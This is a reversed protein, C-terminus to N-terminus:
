EKLSQLVAKTVEKSYFLAGEPTLHCIDDFHQRNRPMKANLDIFKIEPYRNAIRHVQRNHAVIGAIVHQPKGWIEVASRHKGYDLVRRRFNRLSYDEPVYFAFTSLMLLEGKERAIDAINRLNEGFSKESKIDGGYKLWEPKLKNPAMLNDKNLKEQLLLWGLRLTYPFTIYKLEQHEDALKLLSYWHYYHSYDTKFVAPPCNNTRVENIGHYFLVVDFPKDKLHNYKFYSDRSTHGQFASNHIRVERRMNESLTQKLAIGVTGWDPHLVSGGLLLVDFYEDGATMPTNKIEELGPFFTYVMNGPQFFPVTHTVSLYTRSTLELLIILYLIYLLYKKM